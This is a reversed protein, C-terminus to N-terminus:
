TVQDMRRFALAQVSSGGLLAKKSIPHGRRHRVIWVSHNQFLENWVRCLSFLIWLWGLSWGQPGVKLGKSTTTLTLVILPPFLHNFVEPSWSYKSGVGLSFGVNWPVSFDYSQLQKHSPPCYVWKLILLSLGVTVKHLLQAQVGRLLLRVQGSVLQTVRLRPM